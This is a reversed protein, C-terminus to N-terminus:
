LIVTNSFIVLMIQDLQQGMKVMGEVGHGEIGCRWMEQVSGPVTIGDGGQAAM